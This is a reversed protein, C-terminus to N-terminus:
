ALTASSTCLRGLQTASFLALQSKANELQKLAERREEDCIRRSEQATWLEAKRGIEERRRQDVEGDDVIAPSSKLEPLHSSEANNTTKWAAIWILAVGFVLLCGFLIWDVPHRHIENKLVNLFASVISTGGIVKILEWVPNAGFWWWFKWLPHKRAM